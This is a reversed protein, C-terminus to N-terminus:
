PVFGALAYILAANWNIAIENVYYDSSEDFWFKGAPVDAHEKAKPDRPNKHPGGVLLGPWPVLMRDSNSPRHHPSVPPAFGVGTVFSRGFPNRGLLYDVQQTAADLYKPDSSIRYAAWLNMVSRAVMGNSGWNYDTPALARGYGHSQAQSLLTDAGKVISTQLKTVTETNRAPLNSDAYDFIALNGAGAWDWSGAVTLDGLQAEIASLDADGTTRWLEVKAWTRAARESPESINYPGGAVYPSQSTGNAAAKAAPNAELWGDALEAAATLEDAYASDFPRITRAGAAVVAEFYATASTSAQLFYRQPRDSEPSVSDNPFNRPCVLHLVSGDAQQMKLLWDLQYKAEALIGPLPSASDPVHAIRALPAGFDEWAKLLFAVSFAGNVTYKGYDGADHWGGTADHDGYQGPTFTADFAGDTQHCDGHAFTDGGFDISVSAGCRQGYLGLLASRLVDAYASSTIEFPPSAAYGAVEIVYTGPQNLASFDAVRVSEGTDSVEIPNQTLAGAYAVQQSAVDRVVFASDAAEAPVTAFKVRAPLYGVTNAKVDPQQVCGSRTWVQGSVCSKPPVYTSADGNQLQSESL